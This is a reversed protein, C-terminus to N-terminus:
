AKKKAKQEADFKKQNADLRKALGMVDGGSLVAGMIADTNSLSQSVYGSLAKDLKGNLDRLEANEKRLAYIEREYCASSRPPSAYYPEEDEYM